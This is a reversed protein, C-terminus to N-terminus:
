WIKCTQRGKNDAMDDHSKIQVKEKVQVEVKRFQYDYKYM